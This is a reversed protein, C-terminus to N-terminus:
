MAAKGGDGGADDADPEAANLKGTSDTEAPNTDFTLGLDKAMQVERARQALLDEFDGGSQAVVEAQTAFGCRVAEKFAAVEKAPDIWAWGRPMWRPSKYAAENQFYDPILVDGALVAADLWAEFVPQHFNQILWQQLVKWNDRDDLLALRSSSYNSQSFDKSLSEYSLGVGASVGRLQSRMFPDFQGGPRALTPVNVKEGPALYKFVGPQFDTVRDGDQVGDSPVDGEPSEIFGMLSATARAAILEAQEYGNMHHIRMIASSFWPTGRTQGARETIFLHLIENAPVRVRRPSGPAVQMVSTDGPHNPRLYFARPRMWKDLEVGMRIVNGNEARGDYTDDLLDPEIIELALPAKASGMAMPVKRVLCEGSTAVSEMILREIDAFCLKGATHCSEKRKWIEWAAEIQSNLGENLKQGRRMRVQSQMGVGTGVVNNRITRVASRAYDNDRVLQRSRDRLRTLSSVIEADASTSSTIWDSTLRGVNAGAYMRKPAQKQKKKFAWM